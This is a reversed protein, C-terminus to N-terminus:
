SIRQQTFLIGGLGESSLFRFCKKGGRLFPSPCPPIQSPLLPGKAVASGRLQSALLSTGLIVHWSGTSNDSFPSFWLPNHSFAWNTKWLSFNGHKNLAPLLVHEAPIESLSPYIWPQFSLDWFNTQPCPYKQQIAQIGPTFIRKKKKKITTSSALKGLM